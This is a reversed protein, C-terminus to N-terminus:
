APKPAPWTHAPKGLGRAASVARQAPRNGAGTPQDTGAAQAAGSVGLSSAARRAQAAHARRHAAYEGPISTGNLAM